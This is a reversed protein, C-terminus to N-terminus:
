ACSFFTLRNNMASFIIYLLFGKAPLTVYRQLGKFYTGQMDFMEDVQEPNCLYLKLLAEEVPEWDVEFNRKNSGNPATNDAKNSGNPATNDAEDCGAGASDKEGSQGDTTLESRITQDSDAENTSTSTDHAPHGPLPCPANCDYLFRPFVLGLEEYNAVFTVLKWRYNGLAEKELVEYIESISEICCKCFVLCHNAQVFDGPIRKPCFLLVLMACISLAAAAANISLCHPLLSIL